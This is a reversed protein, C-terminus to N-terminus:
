LIGWSGFYQWDAMSGGAVNMARAALSLTRPAVMTYNMTLSLTGQNGTTTGSSHWLDVTCIGAEIWGYMLGLSNSQSNSSSTDAVTVTGSSPYWTITCGSNWQSGFGSEVLARFSVSSLASGGGNATIILNIPSGYNQGNVPTLSTVTVVNSSAQITINATDAKSPDVNSTAKVTAATTSTVSGATFVASNGSNSQLTGPGTSSFTVTPQTTGSVTALFPQFQGASLSVNKPSIDVSVVSQM